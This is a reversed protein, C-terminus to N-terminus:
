NPDTQEHYNSKSKSYSFLEKELGCLRRGTCVNNVRLGVRRVHVYRCACKGVKPNSPCTYTHIHMPLYLTHYTPELGLTLTQHEQKHKRACCVCCCQGCKGM